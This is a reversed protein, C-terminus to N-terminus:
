RAAMPDPHTRRRRRLYAAMGGAAAVLGVAAAIRGNVQSAPLLPTVVVNDLTVGAPGATNSAFCLTSTAGGANFNLSEPAWGPNTSTWPQSSTYSASKVGAVSVTETASAGGTLGGPSANRSQFWTVSYPDGATTTFTQCITGPGSGNLDISQAGDEAAWRTGVVDVSGNTISWGTIATSGSNLTVFSGTVVPSEFSGNVLVQASAPGAMTVLFGAGLALTMLGIRM